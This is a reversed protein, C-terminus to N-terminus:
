EAAGGGGHLLPTRETRLHDPPPGLRKFLADLGEALITAAGPTHENTSVDVLDIEPLAREHDASCDKHFLDPSLFFRAAIKPDVTTLHWGKAGVSLDLGLAQLDIAAFIKLADHSPIALHAHTLAAMLLANADPSPAKSRKRPSFFDLLRQLLIAPERRRLRRLYRRRRYPM